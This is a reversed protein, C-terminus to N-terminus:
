LVRDTTVQNNYHQIFPALKDELVKSIGISNVNISKRVQSVSATYIARDQNYFDLLTSEYKLGCYECLLQLYRAPETVLDSYNLLFLDGDYKSKWFDTLTNEVSFYEAINTLSNAWSLGQSFHTKYCSWASDITNRSIFIIPSEPFVQKILWLYRNNNLSKDIIAGENGYKQHAFDLYAQRIQSLNKKILKVDFQEDKVGIPENGVVGRAAREMGNTEGGNIIKSHACLIHELLTTGSRPLGVIFIPSDSSVIKNNETDCDVGSSNLLIKSVRQKDERYSYDNFKSSFLNSMTAYEFAEEESGCNFSVKSLASYFSSKSRNDSTRDVLSKIRLMRNLINADDKQGAVNVLILWSQGSTPWAKLVTEVCKISVEKQGLQLAVTCLFHNLEPSQPHSELLGLSCSYANHIQGIEVLLTLRKLNEKLEYKSPQYINLIDIALKIKGLLMAMKAVGLWNNNLPPKNSILYNLNEEAKVLDSEKTADILNKIAVNIHKM